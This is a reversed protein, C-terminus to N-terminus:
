TSQIEISPQPSATLITSLIELEQVDTLDPVLRRVSYGKLPTESNTSNSGSGGDIFAVTKVSITEGLVLRDNGGALDIEMRGVSIRDLVARDDGMGSRFNLLGVVTVNQMAVSEADFMRMGRGSRVNSTTIADTGIGAFVSVDRGAEAGLLTVRDDGVGLDVILDRRARLPQSDAQDSNNQIQRFLTPSSLADSTIAGFAQVLLSDDGLGGRVRIDRNSILTGTEYLGVVARDNGGAFDISLDRGTRVASGAVSVDMFDAGNGLNISVDRSITLNSKFALRLTDNGEGLSVWLSRVGNPLPVTVSDVPARNGSRILTGSSWGSVQLSGNTFQVAVFNQEADGTIVIDGGRSVAVQVVGSTIPMAASGIDPSKLLKAETSIESPQFIVGADSAPNPAMVAAALLQRTELLQIRSPCALSAALRRRKRIRSM